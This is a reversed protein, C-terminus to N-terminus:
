HMFQQRGLAKLLDAKTFVTEQWTARHCGAAINAVVGNISEDNYTQYTKPAGRHLSSLIMHYLMHFKPKPSIDLSMCLSVFRTYKDLMFQVEYPQLNRRDGAPRLTAEFRNAEAAAAALLHYRRAKEGHLGEFKHKHSQFIYIIFGLMSKTEAGKGKFVPNARDGLMGVTLNWVQLPCAKQLLVTVTINTPCSRMFLVFHLHMMDNTM